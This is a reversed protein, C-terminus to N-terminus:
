KKLDEALSFSTNAIDVGDTHKVHTWYDEVSKIDEMPTGDHMFGGHSKVAWQPPKVVMAGFTKYVGEKMDSM